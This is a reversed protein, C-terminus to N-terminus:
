RGSREVDGGLIEGEDPFALPTGGGLGRAFFTTLGPDSPDGYRRRQDEGYDTSDREPLTEFRNGRAVTRHSRLMLCFLLSTQSAGPFERDM